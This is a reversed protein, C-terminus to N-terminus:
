MIRSWPADRREEFDVMLQPGIAKEGLRYIRTNNVTDFDLVVFDNGPQKRLEKDFHCLFDLEREFQQKTSYLSCSRTGWPVNSKLVNAKFFKLAIRNDDPMSWCDGVRREIADSLKPDLYEGIKTHHGYEARPSSAWEAYANEPLSSILHDFGWEGYRVKVLAKANEAMKTGDRPVAAHGKKGGDDELDKTYRIAKKQELSFTPRSVMGDELSRFREEHGDLKAEITQLVKLIGLLVEHSKQPDAM